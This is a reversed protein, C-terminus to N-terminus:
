QSYGHANIRSTLNLSVQIEGGRDPGEGCGCLWDHWWRVDSAKRSGDKTSADSAYVLPPSRPPPLNLPKPPPPQKTRPPNVAKSGAVDGAIHFPEKRVLSPSPSSSVDRAAHVDDFPSLAPQPIDAVPDCDHESHTPSPSSGNHTRTLPVGDISDQSRLAAHNAFSTVSHPRGKRGAFLLSARRSVDSVLSSM